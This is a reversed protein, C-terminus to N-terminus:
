PEVDVLDLDIADLLPNPTEAAGPEIEQLRDALERASGSRDAPKFQLQQYILAKLAPPVDRAHAEIPRRNGLTMNTLLALPEEGAFPPTGALCEYLVVGLAFLDSRVESADGTLQEPSMYEPTGVIFGGLMAGAERETSRAIGFDMVKLVGAADILLNSPKIDGHIIQQEHAVALAEALQGGIAVTSEVTLRGRRDLLEEVTLGKVLEMTIFYTGKWEGLDHLRVVNRHSIKRALSVESKLRDVVTADAKVLDRRVVKLAVEEKLERDLARYVMGMGGTGVTDLIEYRGALIDGTAFPSQTDAVSARGNLAKWSEGMEQRLQSLRRQLRAERSKLGTVVRDFVRALRGLPDSYAAQVDLAGTVYRDREVSEAASIIASVRDLYDREIDRLRKRDLTARVRAALILQRFPKPVYDEAGQEICEVVYEDAGAASLMIVPVDRTRESAKLAKLLAMGDMEPMRVDSMILDPPERMAMDFAILGNGAELVDCDLLELQRRLVTRQAPDDEAILVRFRRSPM